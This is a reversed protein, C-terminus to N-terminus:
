SGMSNGPLQFPLSLDCCTLLVTVPDESAQQRHTGPEQPQWVVSGLLDTAWPQQMGLVPNQM